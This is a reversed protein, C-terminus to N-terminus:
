VTESLTECNMAAGFAYGLFYAQENAGRNLNSIPGPQHWCDNGQSLAEMDLVVGNVYLRSWPSQPEGLLRIAGAACCSVAEPAEAEMLYKGKNDRFFAGTCHTLGRSEAAAIMEALLMEDEPIEDNTTM